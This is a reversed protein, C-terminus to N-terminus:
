IVAREATGSKLGTVEFVRQPEDIGKFTVLGRDRAEVADGIEARTSESIWIEGGHLPNAGLRAALNVDAGIVTYDLKRGQSGMNGAIVTGTNVGISIDTTMLSQKSRRGNLGAVAKEIALACRVAQLAHERTEVPVGWVAMVEDGIFKDLYGKHEAVIRAQIELYENIIGVIEEPMLKETLAGLEQHNGFFTFMVTATKRSGGVKLADPNTIIESLLDSSVYSSFAGRMVEREALGKAMRNFADTLEGIEDFRKLDIRQDFKGEAIARVGSELLRIPKTLVAAIPIAVVVGLLLLGVAMLLLYALARAVAREVLGRSM